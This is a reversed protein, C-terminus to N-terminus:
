PQAGPRIVLQDGEVAAVLGRPRLADILRTLEEPQLALGALRAEGRAFDIASASRGPPLTSGIADLLSELGTGSASGTSQRLLAIERGMQLPADVVVQVSPFTQTLIARVSAERLRSDRSERWAYANLGVLNALLLVALGWRAARWQPAQWLLGVWSSARRAARSRGSNALDFQALDWRSRSAALWHEAPTQLVAPRGALSETVAAVAPEALLLPLEDSLAAGAELLAWGPAGLPLLSVGSGNQEGTAVLWGNDPSGIAHFTRQPDAAADPEFEPVIRAVPRGAAELAQVAERLWARDCVAVWAPEDSRIGPELAFHLTQTDDLLREELLGDLVARLRTAQGSKVGRPLTVRQWALLQAPVLAVIEGPRGPLPLLAPAASGQREVAHGDSSLVFGYERPAAADGTPLPLRVTLISM